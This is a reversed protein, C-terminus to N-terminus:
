DWNMDPPDAPTTLSPAGQRQRLQSQLQIRLQGSAADTRAKVAAISAASGENLLRRAAAAVVAPASSEIAQRVAAWDDAVAFGRIAALALPEIGGDRLHTALVARAPALDGLAALAVLAETRASLPAGADGALRRLPQRLAPQRTAIASRAAATRVRPDRDNLGAALCTAQAPVRALGQAAAVRVTPWPDTALVACLTDPAAGASAALARVEPDRSALAAALQPAAHLQKLAKASARALAREEPTADAAALPALANLAEAGGLRALARAAHLRAAIPQQPDGIMQAIQAPLGQQRAAAIAARDYDQVGQLTAIPLWLLTWIM